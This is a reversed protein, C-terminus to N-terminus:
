MLDCRRAVKSIGLIRDSISWASHFCDDVKHIPYTEAGHRELTCYISIPLSDVAAVVVGLVEGRFFQRM